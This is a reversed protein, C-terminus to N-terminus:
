AHSKPKVKKETQPQERVLELDEYFVYAMWFKLLHPTNKPMYHLQQVTQNWPSNKQKLCVKYRSLVLVHWLLIELHSPQRKVRFKTDASSYKIKTKNWICVKLALDYVLIVNTLPNTLTCHKLWYESGIFHKNTKKLKDSM